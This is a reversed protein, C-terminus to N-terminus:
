KFQLQLFWLELLFGIEGFDKLSIGSMMFGEVTSSM